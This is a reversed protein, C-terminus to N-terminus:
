VSNYRCHSLPRWSILVEGTDSLVLSLVLVPVPVTSNRAPVVDSRDADCCKQKRTPGCSANESSIYCTIDKFRDVNNVKRPTYVATYSKNLM